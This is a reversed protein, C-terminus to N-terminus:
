SRTDQSTSNTVCISCSNMRTVDDLVIGLRASYLIKGSLTHQRTGLNIQLGAHGHHRGAALGIQPAETRGEADQQQQGSLRSQYLAHATSLSLCTFTLQRGIGVICRHSWCVILHMTVLTM